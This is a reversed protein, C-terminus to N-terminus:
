QDGAIKRAKRMLDSEPKTTEKAQEAQYVAEKGMIAKGIVAFLIIIAGMWFAVELAQTVGYIVAIAVFVLFWM